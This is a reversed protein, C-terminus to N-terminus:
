ILRSSQPNKRKSQCIGNVEVFEEDCEWECFTTFHANEPKPKINTLTWSDGQLPCACIACNCDVLNDLNDACRGGGVADSPFECASDIIPLGQDSHNCGNGDYCTSWINSDSCTM